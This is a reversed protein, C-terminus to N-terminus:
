LFRHLWGGRRDALLQSIEAAAAKTAEVIAILRDREALLNDIADMSPRASCVRLGVGRWTRPKASRM